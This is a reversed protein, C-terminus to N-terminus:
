LLHGKIRAGRYKKHNSFVISVRSRDDTLITALLDWTIPQLSINSSPELDLPAVPIIEDNTGIIIVADDLQCGTFGTNVWSGPLGEIRCNFIHKSASELNVLSSNKLFEARVFVGGIEGNELPQNASQAQNKVVILQIDNILTMYGPLLLCKPSPTETLEAVGSQIMDRKLLLSTPSLGDAGPISM